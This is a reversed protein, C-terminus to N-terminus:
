AVICGLVVAIVGSYVSTSLQFHDIQTSANSGCLYEFAQCEREFGKLCRCDDTRRATSLTGKDAAQVAHM